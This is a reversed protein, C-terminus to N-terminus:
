ELGLPCIFLSRLISRMGSYVSYGRGPIMVKGKILLLFVVDEEVQGLCSFGRQSNSAERTLPIREMQCVMNELNKAIFFPKRAQNDEM